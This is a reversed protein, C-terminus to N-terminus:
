SELRQVRTLHCSWKACVRNEYSLDVAEYTAIAHVSGFCMCFWFVHLDDANLVLFSCAGPKDSKGLYHLTYVESEPDFFMVDNDPVGDNSTGGVIIIKDGLSVISPGIHGLGVPMRPLASWDDRDSNYVHAQGFCPISILLDPDHVLASFRCHPCSVLHRHICAQRCPNSKKNGGPLARNFACRLSCNATLQSPSQWPTM